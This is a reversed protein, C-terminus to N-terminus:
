NHAEPTPQDTVIWEGDSQLAYSQDEELSPFNVEDVVVESPDLLYVTEGDTSLKFSAHFGDGEEGDDAWVLIFGESVIISGTPFMWPEDEDIDDVLGWGSIDISENSSNYLEIWDATESSKALFENLKVNSANVDEEGALVTGQEQSAVDFGSDERAGSLCGAFVFVNLM